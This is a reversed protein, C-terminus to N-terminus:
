VIFVVRWQHPSRQSTKFFASLIMFDDIRKKGNIWGEKQIVSDVKLLNGLDLDFEQKGMYMEKTNSDACHAATVAIRNNLVTYGCYSLGGEFNYNILFGASPYGRELEGGYLASSDAVSLDSIVKQVIFAGFILAAIFVILVLTKRLKRM